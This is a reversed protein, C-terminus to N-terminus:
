RTAGGSSALAKELKKKAYNNRQLENRKERREPDNQVSMHYSRRREKGKKLKLPDQKIQERRAKQARNIEDKIKQSLIPDTEANKRRTKRRQTIKEILEKFKKPNRKINLYWKKRSIQKKTL